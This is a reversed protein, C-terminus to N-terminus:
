FYWWSKIFLCGPYILNMTHFMLKTCAMLYLQVRDNSEQMKRSKVGVSTHKAILDKFFEKTVARVDYQVKVYFAIAWKSIDEVVGPKM